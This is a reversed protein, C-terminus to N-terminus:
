QDRMEIYYFAFPMGVAARLGEHIEKIRLENINNSTNKYLSFAVRVNAKPHSGSTCLNKASV